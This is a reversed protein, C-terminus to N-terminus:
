RVLDMILKIHKELAEQNGEGRAVLREGWELMEKKWNEVYKARDEQGMNSTADCVQGIAINIFGHESEIAAIAAM